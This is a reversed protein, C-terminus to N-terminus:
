YLQSPNFPASEGCRAAHMPGHLTEEPATCGPDSGSVKCLLLSFHLLGIRGWCGTQEVPQQLPKFRTEGGM